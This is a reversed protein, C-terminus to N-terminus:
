PIPPPSESVKKWTGDPNDTQTAYTLRGDSERAVRTYERQADVYALCVQV